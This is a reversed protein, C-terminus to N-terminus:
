HEAMHRDASLCNVMEQLKNVKVQLEMNVKNCEYYWVCVEAETAQAPGQLTADNVVKSHEARETQMLKDASKSSHTSGTKIHMSSSEAASHSATGCEATSPEAAGHEATSHLATGHEATGPEATGHSATSHSATSCEATGPEATPVM